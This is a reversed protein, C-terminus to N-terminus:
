IAVRNLCTERCKKTRFMQPSINQIKPGRVDSFICLKCNIFIYIYLYMFVYIHAWALWRSLLQSKRERSRQRALPPSKQHSPGAVKTKPPRACAEWGCLCHHSWLAGSVVSRPKPVEVGFGLLENYYISM